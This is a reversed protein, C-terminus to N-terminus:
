FAVSIIKGFEKDNNASFTAVIVYDKLTVKRSQSKIISTIEEKSKELSKRIENASFGKDLYEQTSNVFSKTLICTLTTGDGANDVTKQAAQKVYEAGLSEIADDLFISKAVSVGDKTPNPFGGESEILVTRGNYGYTSAVADCVINVGKILPLKADSYFAVDKIPRNM